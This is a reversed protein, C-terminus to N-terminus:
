QAGRPPGSVNIDGPTQCNTSLPLLDASAEVTIDIVIRNIVDLDSLHQPGMLFGGVADHVLCFSASNSPRPTIEDLFAQLRLRARGDCQLPYTGNQRMAM